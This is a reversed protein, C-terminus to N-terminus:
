KKATKRAAPAPEGVMKGVGEFESLLKESTQVAKNNDILLQAVDRPVSIMEGRPYNMFFGNICGSWTQDEQGPIEPLMVQVRPQEGLMRGVATVSELYDKDSTYAM